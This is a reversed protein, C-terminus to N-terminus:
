HQLFAVHVIPSKICYDCDDGCKFGSYTVTGYPCLYEGQSLQSSDTIVRATNKLTDIKSDDWSGYSQIIQMNSPIKSFDFMFSKTYGYFRKSPLAEAIAIWKDIYLQSYFDGDTNIRVISEKRKSLYMVIEEVFEDLRSFLFNQMRSHRANSYQKEAKLSYCWTKCSGKGPCTYHSPLSWNLIHKSIKHNGKSFYFKRIKRMQFGRQM